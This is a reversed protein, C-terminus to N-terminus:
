PRAEAEVLALLRAELQSRDRLLGELSADLVAGGGAVVLGAEIGRDTRFRAARGLADTLGMTAAQQEEGSLERAHRITWEGQPLVRLAENLYHETWRQRGDKDRWRALLRARLMPWAAELLDVSYQESRRRERTAREARAAQIRAEARSREAIVCEHLRARGAEYAHRVLEAAEQQAGDLIRRSEEDRYDEVLKRLRKEREELKM